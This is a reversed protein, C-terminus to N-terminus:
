KQDLGSKTQVIKIIYM